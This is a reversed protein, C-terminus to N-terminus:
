KIFKFTLPKLGTRCVRPKISDSYEEEAARKLTLFVTSAAAIKNQKNVIKNIESQTYEKGYILKREVLSEAMAGLCIQQSKTPGKADNLKRKKSSDTGKTSTRRKCRRIDDGKKSERKDTGKTSTHGRGRLNQTDGGEISERKDGGDVGDLTETYSYLNEEHCYDGDSCMTRYIDTFKVDSYEDSYMTNYECVSGRKDMSKNEVGVDFIYYSLKPKDVKFEGQNTVDEEDYHLIDLKGSCEFREPLHSRGLYLFPIEKAHRCKDTHKHTEFIWCIQEENYIYYGKGEVLPCRFQMDINGVGATIAKTLKPTIGLYM